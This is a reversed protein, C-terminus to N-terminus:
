LSPLALKTDGKREKIQKDCHFFQLIERKEKKMEVRAREVEM